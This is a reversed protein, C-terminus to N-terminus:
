LTVVTEGVKKGEVERKDMSMSKITFFSNNAEKWLGRCDSQWEWAMRGDSCKM